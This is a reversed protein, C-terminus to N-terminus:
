HAVDIIQVDVRRDLELVAPDAAAEAGEDGVSVIDIRDRPIGAEVLEAAMAEARQRAMDRDFSAVTVRESPKRRKMALYDEANKDWAKADANVALANEALDRADVAKAIAAPKTDGGDLAQKLLAVGEDYRAEARKVTEPMVDDADEEDARDLAARADFFDQPADEPITACGAMLGVVYLGLVEVKM